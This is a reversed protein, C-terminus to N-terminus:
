LIPLNYYDILRLELIQQISKLWVGIIKYYSWALPWNCKEKRLILNIM